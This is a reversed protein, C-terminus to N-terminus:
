YEFIITNERNQMILKNVSFKGVYDYDFPLKYKSKYKESAIINIDDEDIEFQVIEDNNITWFYNDNLSVIFNYDM